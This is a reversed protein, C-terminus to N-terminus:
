RRVLIATAKEGLLVTVAPARGLALGGPPQKRKRRDRPALLSCGATVSVVLLLLVHHATM